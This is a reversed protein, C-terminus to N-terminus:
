GFSKGFKSKRIKEYQNRFARVLADVKKNETSEKAIPVPILYTKTEKKPDANGVELEDPKIGSAAIGPVNYKWSVIFPVM